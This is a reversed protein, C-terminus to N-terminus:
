ENIPLVLFKFNDSIKMEVPSTTGFFRVEFTDGEAIKITEKLHNYNFIYDGNEGTYNKICDGLDEASRILGGTTRVHCEDTGFHFTTECDTTESIRNLIKNLGDKVITCRGVTEKDDRDTYKRYTVYEGTTGAFDLLISINNFDFRSKSEGINIEIDGENESIVKLFLNLEKAFLQCVMDKEYKQGNDSCLSLRSGDTAVVSLGEKGFEFRVIRFQEERWIDDTAAFSTRQILSKLTKLGIKITEGKVKEPLKPIGEKDLRALMAYCSKDSKRSVGSSDPLYFTVIANAEIEVGMSKSLASISDTSAEDVVVTIQGKPFQSLLKSINKGFLAFNGKDKISIGENEISFKASIGDRRASIDIGKDKIYFGFFSAPSGTSDSNDRVNELRQLANSLLESDIVFEISM